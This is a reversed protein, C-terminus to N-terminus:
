RSHEWEWRLAMLPDWYGLYGGGRYVSSPRWALHLHPGSSHGSSGSIGVLWGSELVAGMQPRDEKQLHAFLWHSGNLDLTKTYYGYGTPDDGVEVVECPRDTVVETGSPMGVDLGNHGLMGLQSYFDAKEGFLQTIPYDGWWLKTQM